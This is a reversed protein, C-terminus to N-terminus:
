GGDTYARAQIGFLEAYVGGCAMLDDHVGHEVLRGREM